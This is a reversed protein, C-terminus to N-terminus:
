PNGSHENNQDNEAQYKVQGAFTLFAMGVHTLFKALTAELAQSLRVVHGVDNLDLTLNAPARDQVVPPLDIETNNGVVIISEIGRVVLRCLEGEADPGLQVVWVTVPAVVENQGLDAGSPQVSRHLWVGDDFHRERLHQCGRVKLQPSKITM